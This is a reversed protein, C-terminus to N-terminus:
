VASEFIVRKVAITGELHKQLAQMSGFQKLCKGCTLQDNIIKNIEVESEHRCKSTSRLHKTLSYKNAFPNRCHPCFLGEGSGSLPIPPYDPEPQTPLSVVTPHVPPPTATM